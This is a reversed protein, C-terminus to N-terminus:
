RGDRRARLTNLIAMPHSGSSLMGQATSEEYGEFAGIEDSLWELEEDPDLFEGYWPQERGGDPPGSETSDSLHISTSSSLCNPGWFQPSQDVDNPSQHRQHPSQDSVVGSPVTLRYVDAWNRRPGTSGSHTRVLWGAEILRRLARDVTNVSIGLDEALRARGPHANTGDARAYKLMAAAVLRAKDQRRLEPARLMDALWTLPSFGPRSM